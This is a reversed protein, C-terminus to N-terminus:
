NTLTNVGNNETKRFNEFKKRSFLPNQTKLIKFKFFHIKLKQFNLIEVIINVRRRRVVFVNKIYIIVYLQKLNRMRHMM